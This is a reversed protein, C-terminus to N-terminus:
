AYYYATLIGITFSQNEKIKKSKRINLHFISCKQPSAFKQKKTLIM